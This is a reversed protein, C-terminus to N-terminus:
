PQFQYVKNNYQFPNEQIKDNTRFIRSDICFLYEITMTLNNKFFTHQLKTILPAIKCYTFDDQKNYTKIHGIEHLFSLIENSYKEKIGYEVLKNNM